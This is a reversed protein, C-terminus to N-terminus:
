SEYITMYGDGSLYSVLYTRSAASDFFTAATGTNQLPAYTASFATIFASYDEPTVDYVLYTISGDAGSTSTMTHGTLTQPYPAPLATINQTGTDTITELLSSASGLLSQLLAPDIEALADQIQSLQESDFDSLNGDLIAALQTPSFGVLADALQDYESQPSGGLLTGGLLDTVKNKFLLASTACLVACLLFAVLFGRAFNRRNRNKDSCAFIIAFILGVLPVAFLVLYGFYAWTSLPKYRGEPEAAVGRSASRTDSGRASSSRASSSRADASRHNESAAPEKKDASFNFDM